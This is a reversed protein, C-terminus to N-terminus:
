PQQLLEKVKGSVKGMDARGQIKAKLAGMVKGMDRISSANTEAIIKKIIDELEQASLQEPMYKQLTKLAFDEKQVLDDRGANKYQTIADKLQKIQKEIAATVQSDDLVIREDIERQKIAALLFRIVDLKQQDRARMADKMDNQIRNKLSVQDNMPFIGGKPDAPKKAAAVM